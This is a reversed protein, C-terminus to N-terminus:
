DYDIASFYIPIIDLPEEVFARYSNHPQNGFNSLIDDPQVWTQSFKGLYNSYSSYQYEDLRCPSDKFTPLDLPNRHIYKSLHIWQSEGEIKVAKYRDQFLHGIRKHRTNFYRVYKTALSSMFNGMSLDGHQKIFLHIHNPMLCYALLEIQDAYNKPKRSPFVKLSLGQLDQLDSLEQSDHSILYLKLYSLFTKYDKDDQFITRKEVGRNYVHYYAGAEYEKIANKSPM